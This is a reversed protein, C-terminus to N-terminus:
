SVTPPAWIPPTFQRAQALLIDLDDHEDTYDSPDHHTM